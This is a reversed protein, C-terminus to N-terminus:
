NDLNFGDQLFYSFVDLLLLLLVSIIYRHRRWCYILRSLLLLYLRSFPFIFYNSCRIPGVVVFFCFFLFRYRCRCCCGNFVPSLCFLSVFFCIVVAVVGGVVVVVVAFVIGDINTILALVIFCVIFTRNHDARTHGM